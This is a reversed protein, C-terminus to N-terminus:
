HGTGAVCWLWRSTLDFLPLVLVDSSNRSSFHDVKNITKLQERLMYDRQQKTINKEV